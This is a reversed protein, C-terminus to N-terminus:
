YYPFKIELQEGFQKSVNDLNSISIGLLRVPRYLVFADNLLEFTTKELIEKSKIPYLFTKSKSTIQFDNFKMKLNLTRGYISNKSSWNWVEEIMPKINIQMEDLNELDHFFTNETGFSKRIHESKVERHDIARSINYYYKGSKGFERLLKELELNKLDLGTHIGMMQMREATVKGIGHFKKIPLQDIFSESMKPTIVYLGDPKNYDSAIKALFKNFSVGASATLDTREKIKQKIENAIDTAIEINKHNITVDLFAEDLSLPEVLDTYELFIERIQNSVEKYVQFRPKVFILHPCKRKAVVSSMASGVGYKRAEYSATAIVGREENGGVAICKGRLEPFDRQEVSAYFADMDIHIIKRQM